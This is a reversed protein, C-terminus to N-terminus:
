TVILFVLVDVDRINGLDDNSLDVDYIGKSNTFTIQKHIDKHVDNGIQFRYFSSKM